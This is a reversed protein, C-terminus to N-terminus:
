WSHETHPGDHHLPTHFLHPAGGLFTPSFVSFLESFFSSEICVSLVPGGKQGVVVGRRGLTRWWSSPGAMCAECGMVDAESGAAVKSDFARYWKTSAPPLDGGDRGGEEQKKKKKKAGADRRVLAVYRGGRMSGLHEVVGLVTCRCAAMTPPLAGAPAVDGLCVIRPLWCARGDQAPPRRARRAWVTGLAPDAPPAGRPRTANPPPPTSPPPKPNPLRPKEAPRWARLARKRPPRRSWARWNPAARDRSRPGSLVKEALAVAVAVARGRGRAVGAPGLRGLRCCWGVWGGRWARAVCGGCGAGPVPRREGDM